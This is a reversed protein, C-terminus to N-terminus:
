QLGAGDESRLARPQPRLREVQKLSGSDGDFLDPQTQIEEISFTTAERARVVRERVHGSRALIRQAESRIESAEAILRRSARVLEQSQQRARVSWEALSLDGNPSTVM